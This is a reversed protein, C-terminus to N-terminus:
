RPTCPWPRPAPSGPAARPPPPAVRPTARAAKSHRVALGGRAAVRAAPACGDLGKLPPPPADRPEPTAEAAFSRGTPRPGCPLGGHACHPRAHSATDIRSPPRCLRPQRAQPRLKQVWRCACACACPAGAWPCCRQSQRCSRRGRTRCATFPPGHPFACPVKAARAGEGGGEGAGRRVAAGGEGGGEGGDRRM